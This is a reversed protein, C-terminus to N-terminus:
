VEMLETEKTKVIQDLQKVADDTMTQVNELARKLDDETLEGDKQLAKLMANADRRSNRVSVKGNEGLRVVQKALEKRRDETLPPVSLRILTGDNSPTIGLNSQQIAREIDKLM